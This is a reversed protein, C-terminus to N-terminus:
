VRRVEYWFPFENNANVVYANGRGLFETAWASPAVIFSLFQRLTGSEFRVDDGGRWEHAAVFAIRPSSVLAAEACSKLLTVGADALKDSMKGPGLELM